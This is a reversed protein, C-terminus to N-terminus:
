EFISSTDDCALRFAGVRQLRPRAHPRVRTGAGEAARLGGAHHAAGASRRPEGPAVALVRVSQRGVFLRGPAEGRAAGVGLSGATPTPQASYLSDHRGPDLLANGCAGLRLGRIETLDCLLQPLVLINAARQQTPDAVLPAVM